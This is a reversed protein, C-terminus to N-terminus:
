NAQKLSLIEHHKCGHRKHEVECILAFSVCFVCSFLWFPSLWLQTVTGRLVMYLHRHAICFPLRCTVSDGYQHLSFRGCSWCNQRYFRRICECNSCQQEDDSPDSDRKYGFRHGFRGGGVYGVVGGRHKDCFADVPPFHFHALGLRYLLHNARGERVCRDHVTDSTSFALKVRLGLVWVTRGCAHELDEYSSPVSVATSPLTGVSGVVNRTGALNVFIAAGDRPIGRLGM